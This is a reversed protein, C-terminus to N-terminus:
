FVQQTSEQNKLQLRSIELMEKLIPETNSVPAQQLQNILTAIHSKTTTRTAGSSASSAPSGPQTAPPAVAHPFKNAGPSALASASGVSGSSARAAKASNGPAPLLPSQPSDPAKSEPALLPPSDSQASPSDSDPDMRSVDIDSMQEDDFDSGEESM